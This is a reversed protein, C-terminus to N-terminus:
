SGKARALQTLFHRTELAWRGWDGGLTCTGRSWGIRPVNSREERPSGDSGGPRGDFGVGGKSARRRLGFGERGEGEVFSGGEQLTMSGVQVEAKQLEHVSSRFDDEDLLVELGSVASYGRCGM